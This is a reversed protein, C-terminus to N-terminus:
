MLGHHYSVNMGLQSYSRRASEPRHPFRRLISGRPTSPAGSEHSTVTTLGMSISDMSDEGRRYSLGRAMELREQADGAVINEVQFPTNYVLPRTLVISTTVLFICLPLSLGSITITVPPNPDATAAANGEGIVVVVVIGVVECESWLISGPIRSAECFRKRCGGNGIFHPTAQAAM